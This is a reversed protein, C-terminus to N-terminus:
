KLEKFSQIVLYGSYDHISAGFQWEFLKTIVANKEDESVSRKIMHKNFYINLFHDKGKSANEEISKFEKVKIFRENEWDIKAVKLKLKKSLLDKMFLKYQEKDFGKVRKLFSYLYNNEVIVKGTYEDSEIELSVFKSHMGHSNLVWDYFDDNSQYNINITSFVFTILLIIKM